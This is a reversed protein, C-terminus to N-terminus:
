TVIVPAMTTTHVTAPLAYSGLVARFAPRHWKRTLVRLGRRLISARPTHPLSVEEARLRPWPRLAPDKMVAAVGVAGLGFCEVARFRSIPSILGSHAEIPEIVPEPQSNPAWFPQYCGARRCDKGPADPEAQM